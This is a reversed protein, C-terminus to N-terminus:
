KIIPYFMNNIIAQTFKLNKIFLLQQKWIFINSYALSVIYKKKSHFIYIVSCKKNVNYMYDM